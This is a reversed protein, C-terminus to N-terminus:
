NVIPGPQRFADVTLFAAGYRNGRWVRDETPRKGLSMSPSVMLTVAAALIVLRKM